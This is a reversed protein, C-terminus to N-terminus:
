YIVCVHATEKEKEIKRLALVNPLLQDPSM